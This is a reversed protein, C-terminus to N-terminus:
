DKILADNENLTHMKRLTFHKRIFKILPYIIILALVTLLFEPLMFKKLLIDTNSYDWIVYYFFYDLLFCISSYFVTLIFINLFSKRLLHKFLLSTFVCGLLLLIANYGILKGLAIDNLLGCFIGTIASVLEDESMSICLSLPILIEPKTFSGTTMFIFTFWIILSFISWRMLAFKRKRRSSVLKINM